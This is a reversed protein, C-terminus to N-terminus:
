QMESICYRDRGEKKARYLTQDAEKYIDEFEAHGHVIVAGVSVSVEFGAGNRMRIEKVNKSLQRLWKDLEKRSLCQPCYICFEDGGFRGCLSPKPFVAQLNKAVECLVRDGAPHGYQDNIRKFHDIDLMIFACANRQAHNQMAAEVYETVATKNYLRTLPDLEAEHESTIDRLIGVARTPQLSGGTVATVSMKYWKKEDEFFGSIVCEASTLGRSISRMTEEFRDFADEDMSYGEVLRDCLSRDGLYGSKIEKDGYFCSIEGTELQYELIIDSSRQMAIRFREESVAIYVAQQEIEEKQQTLMKNYRREKRLNRAIVTLIVALFFFFVVLLIGASRSSVATVEQTYAEFQSGYFGVCFGWEAETLPGYAVYSLQGEWEYTDVGVEGDIARKELKAISKASEDGNEKVLEQANYRTTIWDYNEERATGINRGEENVIYATGFDLSSFLEGMWKSICYGDVYEILIGAVTDKSGNEWVPAAIVMVYAGKENFDPSFVVTNGEWVRSLDIQLMDNEQFQGSCHQNERTQYCYNRGSKDTAMALLAQEIEEESASVLNKRYEKATNELESKLNELRSDMLQSGLNEMIQMLEMEHTVTTEFFSKQILSYMAFTVIVGTLIIATTIWLSFKVTDNKERMDSNEAEMYEDKINAIVNNYGSQM